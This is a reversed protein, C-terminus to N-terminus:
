YPVPEMNPVAGAKQLENELLNLAAVVKGAKDQIADNGHKGLQRAFTGFKEILRCENMTLELSDTNTNIRM